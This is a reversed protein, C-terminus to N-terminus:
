LCRSGPYGFSVGRSQLLTKAPTPAYQFSFDLTPIKELRKAPEQKELTKVRSQVMNALRAKARFRNIFVEVEKRKKEENQRTKEYVTEDQALKQYYKEQYSGAIHYWRTDEPAKHHYRCFGHPCFTPPLM